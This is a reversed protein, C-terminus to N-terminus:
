YSKHDEPGYIVPARLGAKEAVDTFHAHFPLGSPKSRPAPHVNRSLIGQGYLGLAPLAFLRNFRRRSWMPLGEAYLMAPCFQHRCTLQPRENEQLNRSM